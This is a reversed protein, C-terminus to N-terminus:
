RLEFFEEDRKKNDILGNYQLISYENLKGDYESTDDPNYIKGEADNYCIANVVPLQKCMDMLYKDFGTMPLGIVTKMIPSLYNASIHVNEEEDIDYNAWIMFPVQHKLDSWQIDSVEEHSSRMASYFEDSLRPQHDGFMVIVTEEDVNSFYDILQKLADDSLKMLNLFQVVSEQKCDQTLVEVGADVVGTKLEYGGHNQITVNFMFFPSKNEKRYNEFEKEVYDYDYEDSVFDRIKEPNELQEYAIHKEFGLLPYIKNRNYSDLMGPHFAINGGYGLDKMYDALSPTPNKIVSRYPVSMFPMFKMSFGTLCEFESNATSGGFVSSHMWGKVTNEKLSNYFPIVDQNTEFKGLVSLDSFSENMVVIVNPTKESVEKAEIRKDSQYMEAIKLVDDRDYGKPKRVISNRVTLVFSLACGNENYTGKPKFGSVKFKHDEVYSSAFFLYYATGIWLLLILAPILRKKMGISGHKESPALAAICWLATLLTALLFSKDFYINYAKAVQMATDIQAFDTAILPTDRFILLAYNTFGFMAGILVTMMSTLRLRGSITYVLWWVLGIIVLNAIGKGSESTIHRLFAMVGYGVFKQIVFYSVLPSLVFMTIIAAGSFVHERGTRDEIRRDIKEFPLLIFILTALILFIILAIMKRSYPRETIAMYMCQKDYEKGDIVVNKPNPTDTDNYDSLVIEFPENSKIDETTLRFVYTAGKEVTLRGKDRETTHTSVIRNANVAEADAGFVLITYNNRNILSADAEASGIVSGKDDILELTIKGEAAEGALNRFMIHIGRISDTRMTVAQDIVHNGELSLNQTAQNKYEDNIHIRKGNRLSDREAFLFLVVAFLLAILVIKKVNGKETNSLTEKM